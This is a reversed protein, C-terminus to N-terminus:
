PLVISPCRGTVWCAEAVYICTLRSAQNFMWIGPLRSPYPQDCSIRANRPLGSRTTEGENAVREKGGRYRNDLFYPQLM